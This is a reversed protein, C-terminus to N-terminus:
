PLTSPVPPIELATLTLRYDSRWSFSNSGKGQKEPDKECFTLSEGCRTVARSSLIRIRQVVRTDHLSPPQGNALQAFEATSEVLPSLVFGTLAMSPIFRYVRKEGHGLDVSLYLQDPKFLLMSLRGLLTPALEIEAFLMQAASPLSVWEGLRHSQQTLVTKQTTAPTTRRQLHLYQRDSGTIQYHSLLTPWSLGDDLSPFRGDISEIRFFINDPAAAGRLHAENMRALLPTYASYSQLVPRPAWHNGSAILDTLDFPYLDSSGPLRPLPSQSALRKLRREYIPQQGRFSGQSIGQLSAIPAGKLSPGIYRLHMFLCMLLATVVISRPLKASHTAQIALIALVTGTSIAGAHVRDHRVFGAKFAIFLFLGVALTIALRKPLAPGASRLTALIIGAALGLYVVVQWLLGRNSMAEAFGSIIPSLTRFYDPLAALPQGALGWLLLLTLLPLLIFLAARLREGKLGHLLAGVLSAMVALPWFSGKIIPLAGLLAIALLHGTEQGVFRLRDDSGHSASEMCTVLTLLLPYAFFLADRSDVLLLFGALTWLWGNHRRRLCSLLLTGQALGFLVGLLLAAPYTAPHYHQTYLAAYPGFTFVIDRGFVLGQAVAQNMALRWADDLETGPLLPAFPAFALLSALLLLAGLM